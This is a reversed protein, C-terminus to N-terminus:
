QLQDMGCLVTLDKRLMRWFFLLNKMFIRIVTSITGVVEGNQDINKMLKEGDDASKKARQKTLADKASQELGRQYSINKNLADIFDSSGNPTFTFSAITGPINTLKSLWGYDPKSHYRVIGYIKGTNEGIRLKNKNFDLGIPSIVNLLANNKSETSKNKM